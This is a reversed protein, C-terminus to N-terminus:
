AARGAAHRRPRRRRRQAGAGGRPAPERTTGPPLQPRQLCAASPSRREIVMNSTVALVAPSSVTAGALGALVVSVSSSGKRLEPQPM